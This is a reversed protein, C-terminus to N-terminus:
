KKPFHKAVFDTLNMALFDQIICKKPEQLLNIRRKLFAQASDRYGIQVLENIDMNEFYNLVMEDPLYYELAQWAAPAGKFSSSNAQSLLAKVYKIHLSKPIDTKHNIILPVLKNVEEYQDNTIVDILEEFLGERLVEPAESLVSDSFSKLFELKIDFSGFLSVKRVAQDLVLQKESDDLGNDRILEALIHIATEKQDVWQILKDLIHARDTDSFAKLKMGIGGISVGKELLLEAFKNAESSISIQPVIATPPALRTTRAIVQAYITGDNVLRYIRDRRAILEESTFKNGLPHGPDYAGIEQHCDFCVPIGNEEEDSGGKAHDIIHAAEINAGCQKLCLCCLRGSKIFMRTKTKTDFPM